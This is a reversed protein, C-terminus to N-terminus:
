YYLITQPIGNNIKIVENITLKKKYYDVVDVLLIEILQPLSAIYVIFQNIYNRPKNHEVCYEEILNLAEKTTIQTNLISLLHEKDM